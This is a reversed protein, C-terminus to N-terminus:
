KPVGSCQKCYIILGLVIKDTSDIPANHLMCVELIQEPQEEVWNFRNRCDQCRWTRRGHPKRLLLKGTFRKAM